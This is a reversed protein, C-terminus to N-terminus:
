SDGRFTEHIDESHITFTVPIYSSHSHARFKVRPTIDRKSGRFLIERKIAPILNTSTKHNAHSLTATALLPQNKTAPPTASILLATNKEQSGTLRSLSM